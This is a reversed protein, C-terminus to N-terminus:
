SSLLKKVSPKLSNAADIHMEPSPYYYNYKKPKKGPGEIISVPKGTFRSRLQQPLGRNTKCIVKEDCHEAIKEFIQQNVLHPFDNFLKKVSTYDDRYDPNRESFWFLIKPVSIKELLSQYKKIYNTRTENVIQKAFSESQSLVRRYAEKTTIKEGTNRITTSGTSDKMFSNDVSRASLVQVVVFKANNILSLIDPDNFHDPGAGGMGLNLIDVDFDEKILNPFPNKCFCGFTQAAGIFAIYNKPKLNPKPGRFTYPLNQLQYPKYDVIKFDRKSYSYWVTHPIYINSDILLKQLYYILKNKLIIM